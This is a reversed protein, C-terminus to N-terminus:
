IINTEAEQNNFFEDTEKLLKQLRAERSEKKIMDVAQVVTTCDWLEKNFRLIMISEFVAPAIASRQTTLVYRAESWVREAEAASGLIFDVPYYEDSDVEAHLMLRDQFSLQEQQAPPPLGDKRLMACAEKEEATLDGFQKRQIKIVGSYFSQDSLKESNPGIWKTGLEIGHWPSGDINQSLETEEIMADLLRRCRQVPELRKQLMTTVTNLNSFVKELRQCADRFVNSTEILGFNAENQQSAEIVDERIKCWKNVMTFRGTWKTKNELSPKLHTFKRLASSNKNSGKIKAMTEHIKSCIQGPGHEVHMTRDILDEVQHDLLHNACNIHPIGLLKATRTNVSASDATQCILFSKLEDHSFGLRQGFVRNKVFNVHVEATFKDSGVFREKMKQLFSQGDTEEVEVIQPLESCALMLIQPPKKEPQITVLLCMYHVSFKTWGDHIISGIKAAKLAASIKQEVLFRMVLIVNRVLSRSFDTSNSGKELGLLDCYNSNEVCSLPWNEFIIMRIIKYLRIDKDVTIRLNQQLQKMDDEAKRKKHGPFFHTMKTLSAKKSNYDMTLAQM